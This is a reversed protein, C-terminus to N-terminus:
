SWAVDVPPLVCSRCRHLDPSQEGLLLLLSPGWAAGLGVECMEWCSLGPMDLCRSAPSPLFFPKWVMPEWSCVFVAGAVCNLSAQSRELGVALHSIRQNLNRGSCILAASRPSKLPVSRAAWRCGAGVLGACRSLAAEPPVCRFFLMQQTGGAGGSLVVVRPGACEPRDTGAAM